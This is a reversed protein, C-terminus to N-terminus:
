GLAATVAASLRAHERVNDARDTVIRTVSPGPQDLAHCLEDATSVTRSPVGHARALAEIDTGHPTGFLQEFREPALTTAQPLFSFIGGGGNDVVVFVVDGPDDVVLGGADHLWSLDGALAVTRGGM